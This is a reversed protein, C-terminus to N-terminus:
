RGAAGPPPAVPADAAPTVDAPTPLSPQNPREGVAAIYEITLPHYNGVIRIGLYAAPWALLGFIGTFLPGYALSLLLGWIGVIYEGNLHVTKAGFLALIGFFVCMPIMMMAVGSFVMPAVSGVKIRKVHVTQPSTKM